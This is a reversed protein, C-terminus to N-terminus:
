AEVWEFGTVKCHFVCHPCVISSPFPEILAGTENPHRLGTKPNRKRDVTVEGHVSCTATLRYFPPKLAKTNM